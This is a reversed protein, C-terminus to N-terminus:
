VFTSSNKKKEYRFNERNWVRYQQEMAERIGSITMEMISALYYQDYEKKLFSAYAADWIKWLNEVKEDKIKLLEADNPLPEKNKKM